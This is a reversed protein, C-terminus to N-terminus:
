VHARGIEKAVNEAATVLVETWAGTLPRLVVRDGVQVSSVEAGVAEIEGVGENGIIGPMPVARGYIGRIVNLDAPHVAALRMRVRVDGATVPPVVFSEVVVASAPSGTKKLMAARATEVITAM